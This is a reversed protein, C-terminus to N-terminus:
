RLSTWHAPPRDVPQRAVGLERCCDGFGVLGIDLRLLEGGPSAPPAKLHDVGLGSVVIRQSRIRFKGEVVALRQHLREAPVALKDAFRDNWGVVSHDSVPTSKEFQM